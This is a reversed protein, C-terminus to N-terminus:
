FIRPPNARTADKANRITEIERKAKLPLEKEPHLWEGIVQLDEHFVQFLATEYGGGPAPKTDQRFLRPISPPKNKM